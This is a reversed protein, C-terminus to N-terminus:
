KRVILHDVCYLAASASREVGITRGERVTDSVLYLNEVGPVKVSPRHPGGAVGPAEALAWHANHRIKWLCHREFEPFLEKIDKEYHDFIRELALRNKARNAEFLSPVENWHAQLFFIAQSQGVAEGYAPVLIVCGGLGTRRLMPIWKYRQWDSWMQKDMGCILTFIVSTKTRIREIWDVYWQPFEDESVVTFLDWVPVTSVVIPAEVFESDVVQAKFVRDGTAVRVGRAKGGEIVINAVATNTRIESGREVIAEALPTTMGAVGDRLDAMCHDLTGAKELREKLFVLLPTAAVDEYRSGGLLTWACHWFFLHAAEDDTRQSVWEKISIDYYKELEGYPQGVIDEMFIRVLAESSRLEDMDRWKGEHLIDAREHYIFQPFPKGVRRFVEEMYGFLAIGHIGNDVIQGRYKAGHARGGVHNEKELVLVKRGAHALLAAMSLGSPGAGVVIADYKAM